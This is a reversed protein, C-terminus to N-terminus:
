RGTSYPAPAESARLPEELLRGWVEDYPHVQRVAEGERVVPRGENAWMFISGRVNVVNTFGQAQLHRVVEASRYGVSCYVVIPADVDLTDVLSSAPSEPDYLRAGEIHSVAYEEPARADLLLPREHALRDLRTALEATSITPVTGVSREILRDVAKWRDDAAGHTWWAWAGVGLVVLTGGMALAGKWWPIRM